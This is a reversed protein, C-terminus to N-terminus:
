PAALRDLYARMTTEDMPGTFSDVVKGKADIFFSTPIYQFEFKSALRQTSAEDTIANVFSVRGEYSPVV